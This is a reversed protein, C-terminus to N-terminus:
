RHRKEMVGIVTNGKPVLHYNGYGVAAMLDAASIIQEKFGFPDGQTTYTIAFRRLDRNALALVRSLAESVAVGVIRMYTSFTMGAANEFDEFTYITGNTDILFKVGATTNGYGLIGPLGLYAYDVLDEPKFGNLLRRKAKPALAWDIIPFGWMDVKM